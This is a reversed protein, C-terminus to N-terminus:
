PLILVHLAGCFRSHVAVAGIPQLLYLVPGTGKGREIRRADNPNRVDLPSIDCGARDVIQLPATTDPPEGEWDTEIWVDHTTMKWSYANNTYRFQDWLLNLGASTGIERLSLHLQTAKAATLFGGHLAASRGVENTQPPLVIYDGLFIDHHRLAEAVASDLPEGNWAGGCSPYFAALDPAKGDLALRHLGGLFRTALNDAFPDSPWAETISAAIGGAAIDDAVASLVVGSLPSGLQVCHAAQWRFNELIADARETM